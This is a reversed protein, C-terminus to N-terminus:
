SLNSTNKGGIPTPMVPTEMVAVIVKRIGPVFTLATTVSCCPSRTNRLRVIEVARGVTQPVHDGVPPEAALRLLKPRKRSSNALADFKPGVPATTGLPVRVNKASLVLVRPRTGPLLTCM